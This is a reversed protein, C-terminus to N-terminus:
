RDGYCEASEPPSLIATMGAQDRGQYRLTHECGHGGGQVCGGGVAKCGESCLPIVQGPIAGARLREKLVVPNVGKSV